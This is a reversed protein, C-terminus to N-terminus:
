REPAGDTGAIAGPAEDREEVMGDILKEATEEYVDEADPDPVPVEAPDAAREVATDVMNGAIDEYVADFGSAPTERGKDQTTDMCM